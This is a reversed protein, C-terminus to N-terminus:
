SQERRNVLSHPIVGPRAYAYRDILETSFYADLGAVTMTGAKQLDVYGDEQMCSEPIIAEIIEGILLITGNLPIPVHVRYQMMLKISSEKIFPATGSSTYEETFGCETFESEDDNFKASAQHAMPLMGSHVHNITYYQEQFINELTHRRVTDPRFVTGLLPPNVGIHVISNFVGINTRGVTNKTGILALSKFGSLSNFLIARYRDPM